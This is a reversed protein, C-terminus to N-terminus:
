DSRTEPAPITADAGGKVGSQRRRILQTAATKAAQYVRCVMADGPPMM